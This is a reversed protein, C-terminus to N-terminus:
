SWHYANCSRCHRPPPLSTDYQQGRNTIYLQKDGVSIFRTQSRSRPATHPGASPGSPPAQRLQLAHDYAQQLPVLQAEEPSAPFTAALAVLFPAAVPPTRPDAALDSLTQRSVVSPYAPAPSSSITLAAFQEKLQRVEESLRPLAEALSLIPAAWSPPADEVRRRQANPEESM